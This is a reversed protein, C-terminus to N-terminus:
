RLDKGLLSSSAPGGPPPLPARPHGNLAAVAAAMAAASAAGGPGSPSPPPPTLRPAPGLGPFGSPSHTPPYMKSAAAGYMGLHPFLSSATLHPSASAAAYNMAMLRAREQEGMMMSGLPNSLRMLERERAERLPDKAAAAAALSAPSPMGGQMLSLSRYPDRFLHDLGPHPGFLSTPPPAGPLSPLGLGPYMSTRPDAVSVPPTSLGPIAGFPYGPMGLMSPSSMSSMSSIPSSDYVSTRSATSALMSQSTPLTSSSRSPPNSCPRKAATMPSSSGNSLERKTGAAAVPSSSSPGNHCITVNGERESIVTVEDNKMSLDHAKADGGAMRMDLADEKKVLSPSASPTKGSASSAPRAPSRSEDRSSALREKEKREHRRRREREAEAERRLKEQSSLLSSESKLAWPSSPSSAASAATASAGSSPRQMAAFLDSSPLQADSRLNGLGGFPVSNV